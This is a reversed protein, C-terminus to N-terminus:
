EGSEVADAVAELTKALEHNRRELEVLREGVEEIDGRTPLGLDHLASAQLEETQQRLELLDDVSRGTMMSFATTSLLSKFAQNAANMWTDRIHEVPVDEGELADNVHEQTEHAADMWVAYAAFLSALGDDLEQQGTTREISDMWAEAFQQQATMSADVSDAFRENMATAWELWDAARDESWAPSSM